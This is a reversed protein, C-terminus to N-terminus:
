IFFYPSQEILSTMFRSAIGKKEMTKHLNDYNVEIRSERMEKLIDELCVERLIEPQIKTNDIKEISILSDKFEKFPSKEEIFKLGFKDGIDRIIKINPIVGVKPGKVELWEIEFLDLDDIDKLSLFEEWNKCKNLYDKIDRERGAEYACDILGDIGPFACLDYDSSDIKNTWIGFIFDLCDDYSALGISGSSYDDESTIRWTLKPKSFKTKPTTKM